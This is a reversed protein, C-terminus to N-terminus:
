KFAVTTHKSVLKRQKGNIPTFRLQIKTHLRGTHRTKLTITVTQRAKTNKTTHTLGTGTATLKGADPVAVKLSVTRKHISKNLIQLTYPCDEINIPTSQKLAMGNQATFTTPMTLSTTCLNTNAGLASYEGQPLNLEFTGVPVDPIQRFTSSTISTKENIFTEGALDITVGDGQLVVILEPFQQGGHSVFYAPGEVPVPLIPTTARAYGVRSQPSCGAPNQAFTAAPCAHNLTNLRSPLARPLEVHVSHINAQTGQPTNPYTLKVKLSAGNKRSTKGNTSAQFGPKFALSACDAAQFPTTTTAPQDDTPSTFNQGSGYVTASIRTKECSTPNITFHERDVQIQIDRVHVVIGDVIHPIQDPLGQPISVRATTPDVDLPLHVVVTGLDFPGVKAASISVISFPAGEFRGGLYMRGPAYALVTGVGVGVQTHGIQSAAPCSPQAEETAGMETRALAIDAETCFPVGTLNATIGEPLQTAFGTVEQEGDKRTIRLSLASYAGAANNATGAVLSPNFPPTGGGPCPGGEVGHEITFYSDRELPASSSFPTLESVTRFQGCTPPTALPARAGERFHLHFSSYPLPPLDEFTTVLQGTVLNPVVHGAQKILIGREPARLIMYIALLSGFQNQYPAALYLSGEIPEEIVPSHAIVSGLKSTEPCGAGPATDVQEAQYQNTSCGSIGEAFSPNATMGEPLAVVVKSPQTEVVGGPNLLGEDPLSLEFDLGSSTGANRTTAQSAVSPSFPVSGCGLLAAPEEGSDLSQATASVYHGPNLSSDIEIKTQLPEQCTAPLTLFPLEPATSPVPPAGQQGAAAEAGRQADHASNAPVGWITATLSAVELPIANTTVSLAYGQEGLVSVNQLANLGIASFGLQAAMGPPPVLNYIPGSLQGTGPINPHIIGVQTDPSCKPRAGEFDQRTCRPVALPDGSMGKPLDILVDRLEGGESHGEHNINLNFAISFAFPHSSAQPIVTLGESNQFTTKVSGPEFGFDADAPATGGLLLVVTIVIALLLRAPKVTMDAATM